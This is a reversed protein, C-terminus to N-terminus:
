LRNGGDDAPVQPLHVAQVQRHGAALGLRLCFLKVQEGHEPRCLLLRRRYGTFHFVPALAAMSGGLVKFGNLFPTGAHLKIIDDSVRRILIFGKAIVFAKCRWYIVFKQIRRIFNCILHFHNVRCPKQEISARRRLCPILLHQTVRVKLNQVIFSICARNERISVNFSSHNNWIPIATRIKACDSHKSFICFQIRNEM